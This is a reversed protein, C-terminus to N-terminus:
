CDIRFIEKGLVTVSGCCGGPNELCLPRASAPSIPLLGSVLIGVALISVKLKRM